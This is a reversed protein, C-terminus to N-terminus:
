LALVAKLQNTIGSSDIGGEETTVLLIGAEGGGDEHLRVDQARYWALKEEWRKRYSPESMMGLHELFVRQGTEADEITFDPYRVSGDKGKMPQEYAYSIKLAHLINAIIVESKSRVLEGRSTRHILGDELFVGGYEVPHPATFLNTLRRATESHTSASLKLLSRLDGQHLLVVRGKQRTLATYLLERSLLRCPNPVVVFTTGFESGQSKHITLAYALELRADSDEGFDRETFGYKYGLQTSFEVEVKWPLGKYKANTGKYQGVVMGIEGNALYPREPSPYVDKRPGNSVNIVKDGYLIGQPGLPKCTKRQWYIEPEAWSRARGRFLRQLWRNLGEVGTEGGRVPSLIQWAEAFAGAGLDDPLVIGKQWGSSRFYPVDGFLKGGLSVEFAVDDSVNASGHEAALRRVEDRILSLLKDKLEHEDKWAVARINTATAAALRDWVEDAGADPADGGFWRALIIDDRSTEVQETQRRVIKLEAYGPRTVGPEETQRLLQVLDVFPRGAGIPPLQRPDGVLILREVSAPEIADFTAALQAETLMSCEDIVVTKFGSERKASGTVRYVGTEPDYRGFSLLFQALTLAQTDSKKQMQVRAKGTPALLLVGGSAVSPMSLLASLLSTKGTGAPGILVSLRSRYIEELAVAKEKRAAEETDADSVSAFDPLQQNILARWEFDGHHRKAALRRRVRQEILERHQKAVDLQWGPSGDALKVAELRESLHDCFTDVWDSGIACQPEIPWDRVRQILWNQPLLTHGEEAAGDLAAICFARGRRPDISDACSSPAALPVANSVAADPFLGRDVTTVAIPDRQGRDAEFLVYPNSLVASDNLKIGVRSREEPVFWRTAQDATVAFRAILKLLDKREPKLGKWLMATSSGITAALDPPLLKPNEVVADVLPWPDVVEPVKETSAVKGIAHAILTGHRLGLATLASGLGPFAGRLRWIRNLETDIWSRSTAWNGPLVKEYRELLSACAILVDIAADHGVHEAGMSFAEWADSPAHLVYSSLDFGADERALELLAQYPLLFGDNGSPRITHHLNREWLVCRMADKPAGREYSYEVSQDVQRVKGLGVIVRRPDETLPTRKAYCLVLSEEPKIAGFFTDLMALQNRREQVWLKDFSLDPELEPRFKINFEKAKAPVGDDDKMMWAFPVTGLSYSPHQFATKRFHAYKPDHSYPHNAWRTYANASMFAGREAACAPLKQGDPDFLKGAMGPGAEFDDNKTEAIRPLVLCATNGRPNACVSGNWQSDHWPVRVSVHSVPLQRAGDIM